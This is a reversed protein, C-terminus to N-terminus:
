LTDIYPKFLRPSTKKGMPVCFFYRGTDVETKNAEKEKIKFGTRQKRKEIGEVKRESIKEKLEELANEWVGKGDTVSSGEAKRKENEAKRTGNKATNEQISGVSSKAKAVKEVKIESVKRLSMKAKVLREDDISKGENTDTQTKPTETRSNEINAEPKLRKPKPPVIPPLGTKNQETHKAKTEM